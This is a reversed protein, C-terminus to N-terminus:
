RRGSSAASRRAPAGTGPMSAVTAEIASLLPPPLSPPYSSAVSAPADPDAPVPPVSSPLPAVAVAWDAPLACPQIAVVPRSRM